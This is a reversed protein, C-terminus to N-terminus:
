FLNTIQVVKKKGTLNHLGLGLLFHKKMICAGKSAGHIFDAAYSDVLRNINTSSSHDLTKLLNTLFLTVSAPPLRDDASLEEVTPPWSLAPLSQCYEEIDKRLYNAVKKIDSEKDSVDVRAEVTGSSIVIDPTNPRSTLFLLKDGFINILKKKWSIGRSNVINLNIM